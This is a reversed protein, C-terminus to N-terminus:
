RWWRRPPELGNARQFSSWWRCPSRWCRRRWGCAFCWGRAAATTTNWGTAAALYAEGKFQIGKLPPLWLKEHLIPLTALLKVLPPHEPNLGFDGTKWMRYGAYMHDGEDWTLSERHLVIVMQVLQLALLVVVASVVWGKKWQM